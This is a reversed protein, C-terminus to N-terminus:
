GSGLGRINRLNDLNRFISSGARRTLFGNGFIPATFPWSHLYPQEDRTCLPPRLPIARASLLECVWRLFRLTSSVYPLNM